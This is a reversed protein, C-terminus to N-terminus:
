LEEKTVGDKSVSIRYAKGMYRIKFSYRKMSKPLYPDISMGNEDIRLGAFGNVIAMYSGGMNATHIGDKTNNHTNMLDLMLSDGFYSEAKDYMKLRSAVISFVCTSLSSDHTTIKEYYEFSKKMVEPKQKNEYLFYALVTDAQKCVQYRYLHLPHYHLLLPFDEKPTNELDWVPKQLFSDDQPNIGLEKDYPLFMKKSAMGMEDLEEDTINLKKVLAKMRSDDKYKNAIKAAWELNYAASANTFYNNNVMCTYEDPGTVDNIVFRDERDYNGVDLWLRATEILIEEGTELMFDEDGTTLYYQVVTFAIDGNIHYAATGSPFYGSCEEGKITRWPYLAGKKHGLLGANERAKDLTAYRYTLITKALKPNTLIFFPAVYMETDWFYHGEYGEGSLGKAAISAHEDRPASSLLEYMNFSVSANLDGSGDVSEIEMESSDWFDFLYESQEKYLVEVDISAADHLVDKAKAEPNNSRITDAFATYKVFGLEEGAKLDAKITYIARADDNEYSIEAKGPVNIRHSVASAIEIGSETTHSIAISTDMCWKIEKVHLLAESSDALRPDNPDSYNRVDAIHYSNVEVKGDFNLAKVKIDMVFLNPRIFSAMRKISIEVRKGLPSEWEVERVTIGLDMNLTRVNKLTKGEGLSFREGDISIFVTMTDAVNLMTQKKEVLNCLSEAQKMPIIDYVGNLYMGRMTGWGDPVGEEIAGRVGIYGNANSFLTEHLNIDKENFEENRTIIREM